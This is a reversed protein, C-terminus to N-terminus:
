GWPRLILLYIPLAAELAYTSLAGPIQIASSGKILGVAHLIRSVVLAGGFIHLLTSSGGCLEAALLLILLLPVHEVSNGHARIAGILEAHGGDGRFTNYKGRLRSVNLGLGLLLLSSLAGYLATVPVAVLATGLLPNAMTKVEEM